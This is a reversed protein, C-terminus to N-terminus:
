PRAASLKTRTERIKEVKSKLEAVKRANQRSTEIDAPSASGAMLASVDSELSAIESSTTLEAQASATTATYAAQTDRVFTQADSIDTADGSANAHALLQQAARLEGYARDVDVQTSREIRGRVAQIEARKAAVASNVSSESSELARISAELAGIQTTASTEEANFHTEAGDIRDATAGGFNKDVYTEASEGAKFDPVLMPGSGELRSRTGAFSSLVSSATANGGASMQKMSAHMRDMSQAMVTRDADTTSPDGFRSSLSAIVEMAKAEDGHELSAEMQGELQSGINLRGVDAGRIAAEKQLKGYHGARAAELANLTKMEGDEGRGTFTTMINKAETQVDGNEWAGVSLAKTDDADKIMSSVPHTSDATFHANSKKFKRIEDTKVSDHAYDGEMKSGFRSWLKQLDASGIEKQLRSDGMARGLLAMAQAESNVGSAGGQAYSKALEALTGRDKNKLGEEQKSINAVRAVGTKSKLDGSWRTFMRGLPGGLSAGLEGYKNARAVRGVIPVNKRSLAGTGPIRKYASKALGPLKTVGRAGLMAGKAGYKLGLGAGASATLAPLSKAMGLAKGVMKGSIGSCMQGAAKFGSFLMVIGILFSLFNDVQFVSATYGANNGATTVSFGTNAAANGSGVVALTLWLFFTLVPGVVVLCKFEKWWEAYADTKVVGEVGKAFWALPAMVILVWLMVIRMLLIGVLALLTTLVVMTLFVSAIGSAFFDFAQSAGQASTTNLDALIASTKSVQHIETLGFMQIFNGAAIERLANAFTLMIVQGFDIMIGCLTKSFNIVIAMMLLRPVQQQWKFREAGIITGFAILILVIVYFMNVSDRVIAWGSIVVPNNTFNNFTMIPILIDILLISLQTLSASINYAFDAFSQIVGDIKSPSAAYVPSAGVLLLISVVFFIGERVGHRSSKKLRGLIWSKLASFRSTFSTM